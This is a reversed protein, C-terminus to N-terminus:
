IITPYSSTLIDWREDNVFAILVDYINTKFAAAAASFTVDIQEQKVKYAGRVISNYTDIMNNATRYFTEDNPNLITALTYLNYQQSQVYVLVESSKGLEGCKELLTEVKNYMDSVDDFLDILTQDDGMNKRITQKMSYLKNRMDKVVKILETKTSFFGQLDKAAAVLGNYDFEELLKSANKMRDYYALTTNNRELERTYYDIKNALITSSSSKPFVAVEVYNKAFANDYKTKPKINSCINDSMDDEGLDLNESVNWRYDYLDSIDVNELVSDIEFPNSADFEPNTGDTAYLVQSYGGRMKPLM